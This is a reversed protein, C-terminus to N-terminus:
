GPAQWEGRPSKSGSTGRKKKEGPATALRAFRGRSGGAARKGTRTGCRDDAAVRGSQDPHLGSGAGGPRWHQEDYARCSRRACLQVRYILILRNRHRGPTWSERFEGEPPTRSMLAAVMQGQGVAWTDGGINPDTAPGWARQDYLLNFHNGNGNEDPERFHLNIGEDTVLIQRSTAGGRVGDTNLDPDIVMRILAVVEQIVDSYPTVPNYLLKNPDGSSPNMLLTGTGSKAFLGAPPYDLGGDYLFWDPSMETGDFDDQFGNVITGSENFNNFLLAQAPAAFVGFLVATTIFGVQRFYLPLERTIESLDRSSEGSILWLFSLFVRPLALVKIIDAGFRLEGGRLSLGAMRRMGVCEGRRM